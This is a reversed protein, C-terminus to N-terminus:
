DMNDAVAAKEAPINGKSDRQRIKRETSEIRVVLVGFLGSEYKVPNGALDVCPIKEGGPIKSAVAGISKRCWVAKFTRPLNTEIEDMGLPYTDEGTDKDHIRSNSVVPRMSYEFSGWLNARIGKVDSKDLRNYSELTSESVNPDVVFMANGVHMSRLTARLKSEARGRKVGTDDSTINSLDSLDINGFNVNMM